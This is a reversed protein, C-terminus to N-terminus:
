GRKRERDRHIEAEGRKRERDRKIATEGGRHREIEGL